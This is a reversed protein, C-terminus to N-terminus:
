PHEPTENQHADLPVSVCVCTGHNPASRTEFHGGILEMREQIGLLGFHPRDGRWYNGVEEIVYGCGNDEIQLTLACGEPSESRIFNIQVRTAHAHKAINTIAEQGVRYLVTEVNAPLRLESDFTAVDVRIGNDELRNKAYWSLAAVLGYDDLLTPRLNLVIRNIEKLIQGALSRVQALRPQADSPALGEVAALNAILATLSQSTEDHLERAVRRCEEEKATMMRRLLQDRLECLAQLESTKVRVNTELETNWRQQDKLMARVRVRMDEFAQALEGVEDQSKVQAQQELHGDAIARAAHALHRIPQTVGRTFLYAFLSGLVMIALGVGVVQIIAIQMSEIQLAIPQFLYASIPLADHTPITFAAVRYPLNAIQTTHYAINTDRHETLNRTLARLYSAPIELPVPDFSYVATDGWTLAIQLDLSECLSELHRQDLRKSLLIVADAQGERTRESSRHAAVGSLWLRGDVQVPGGAILLDFARDVMPLSTQKADTFMPDGYLFLVHREQDILYISDLEHASLFPLLLRKLQLTDKAQLADSMGELNTASVAEAILFREENQLTTQFIRAQARLATDTGLNMRGQMLTGITAVFAFMTLLTLVWFGFILRQTM